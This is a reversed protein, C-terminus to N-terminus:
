PQAYPEPTVDPDDGCCAGPFSESLAFARGAAAEPSHAACFDRLTGLPAGGPFRRSRRDGDPFRVAVMCGGAPPEPPLRAAAAAAAAEASGQPTRM